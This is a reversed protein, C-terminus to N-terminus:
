QTLKVYDSYLNSRTDACSPYRIALFCLTIPFVLVDKPTYSFSCRSGELWFLICPLRSHYLIDEGTHLLTNSIKWKGSKITLSFNDLNEKFPLDGGTPSCHIAHQWYFEGFHRFRSQDSPYHQVRRESVALLHVQLLINEPSTLYIPQFRFYMTDDYLRLSNSLKHGHDADKRCLLAM